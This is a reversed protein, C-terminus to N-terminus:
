QVARKRKKVESKLKMRSSTLRNKDDVIQVSDLETLSNRAEHGHSTANKKAERDLELVIINARGRKDIIM